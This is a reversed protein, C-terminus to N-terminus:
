AFFWLSLITIALAFWQKKSINENYIIFSLIIPIFPSYSMIKYSIGLDGYTYVYILSLTYIFGLTGQFISLKLITKIEQNKKFLEKYGFIISVIFAATFSIFILFPFQQSTTFLKSVLHGFILLLSGLLVYLIGKLYENRQISGQNEFLLIIAIVGLVFGILEYNSIIDGFFLIGIILLSISSILRVNVVFTSTPVIRLGYIMIINYLYIQIGFFIALIILLIDYSIEFNFLLYIFALISMTGNVFVALHSAKFKKEAFIKNTFSILGVLLMSLLAFLFWYEGGM